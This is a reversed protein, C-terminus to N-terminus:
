NYKEYIDRLFENGHKGYEDCISNALERNRNEYIKRITSRIHKKDYDPAHKKLMELYLLGAYKLSKEDKFHDISKVFFPSNYNEHVFKASQLLWLYTEEDIKDLFGTLRSLQSLLKIEEVTYESSDKIKIKNEFLYKWFHYIYKKVVEYNQSENNEHTSFYQILNELQLYDCRDVIIRILSQKDSLKEKGNLYLYGVHQVIYENDHDDQFKYQLGYIYSERLLLYLEEYIQAFSFYGAMFANWEASGMEMQIKKIWSKYWEKDLYVLNPTYRGLWTYSEIYKDRLFRDYVNKLGSEWDNGGYDPNNKSNRKVRLSLSILASLAKGAITNLSYNVFDRIEKEPEENKLNRLIKLLVKEADPMHGFPIAFDDDKLGDNLLEVIVGAVWLSDASSLWKGREVIFKDEWYGDRSIYQDIFKVIYEWQVNEKQNWVDKIASLIEYIYIYGCNLFEALNEIYNKPSKKVVKKLQTALGGVTPSDWDDESKFSLLYDSLEKADMGEIQELHLPSPGPGTRTWTETKYTIKSEDINEIQKYKYLLEGFEEDNKLPLLWKIKWYIIYKEQDEEPLYFRPGREIIERLLKKDKPGFYKANRKLLESFEPQLNSNEFLKIKDALNLITQFLDNYGQYCKGISYLLLRHFIPYKFEEELINILIPRLNDSNNKIKESIIDRVIKILTIEPDSRGTSPNSYLSPFSIYSYDELLGDYIKEYESQCKGQLESYKPSIALKKNFNNVFELKSYCDVIKFEYEDSLEPPLYRDDNENNNREQEKNEAGLKITFNCINIKKGIVIIDQYPSPLERWTIDRETDLISIIQQFLYIIIENSLNKGINIINKDVSKMLWYPEVTLLPKKKRVKKGTQNPINEGWKIETAIKLITEAKIKDELSETNLFKPLLKMVLDAGEISTHFKTLLWNRCQEIDSLQIKDNPLNALINIFSNWIRFNDLSKANRLHYNTVEKIILLLEDVYKDNKEKLTIESIKILYSLAPWYPISFTGEEKIEVPNYKDSPEFYGKEKLPYFWHLKEVKRFFYNYYHEEQILSLLFKVEQSTPNDKEIIKDIYQVNEFFRDQYQNISNSTAREIIPEILKGYEIDNISERTFKVAYIDAFLPPLDSSRLELLVPLIMVNNSSLQRMLGVNMEKSVWNSKLSNESLVILLFYSEILANNVKEVISDGAKIEWDDIWVDIGDNRLRHALKLVFDHDSSTHSIFVKM